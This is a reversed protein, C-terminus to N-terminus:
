KLFKSCTEPIQKQRIGEAVLERLRKKLVAGSEGHNLIANALLALKKASVRLDVHWPNAAEDLTNGPSKITEIGTLDLLSRDFLVYGMHDISQGGIALARVIREVNSRDESVEWVSLLNQQTGLDAMCDAPADNVALLPAAPEKYWRNQRVKRLLLPM